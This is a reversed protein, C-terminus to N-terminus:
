KVISGDYDWLSCAFIYVGPLAVELLASVTLTEGDTTKEPPSISIPGNFSVAPPALQDLRYDSSIHDKWDAYLIDKANLYFHFPGKIGEGRIKTTKFDFQIQHIGATLYEEQDYGGLSIQEEGADKFLSGSLMYTGTKEAQITATFRITEGQDILEDNINLISLLNSQFDYSTLAATTLWAKSDHTLLNRNIDAFIVRIEYPGDKGTNRIERGNFYTSFTQNTNAEFHVDNINQPLFAPAPWGSCVIDKNAAYLSAFMFGDLEVESYTEVEVVLWEALGNDDKDILHYKCSTIQIDTPSTDDELPTIVPEEEVESHTEVDVAQWEALGNNDKDILHYKCSTIQIDTPSSDDELPTIVPEETQSCAACILVILLYVFFIFIKKVFVGEKTLLKCLIM